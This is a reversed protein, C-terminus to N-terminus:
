IITFKQAIIKKFANGREQYNKFLDYSSGSPSFLIPTTAHAFKCAATFADELTEHGSSRIGAQTCATALQEKEAGFCIVHVVNQPLQAILLAARNVGKSLGGLILVVPQNGFSHVAALTAEPVTSKSDNYFTIGEATNIRELRHHLIESDYNVTRDFDFPQNLIHLASAVILWNEPYSRQPFLDLSTIVKQVGNKQTMIQNNEVWFLEYEFSVPPKQTTFFSFRDKQQEVLERVPLSTLLELPLLARQDKKQASLIHLKAALYNELTGHRDLHNPYLNTIIALQPQFQTCYELQFSSLELVTCDYEDQKKILELMGVGINGATVVRMTRSLLTSIFHTVSTKGVTGTIAIIPQHFNDSLLDLETIFKHQYHMQFPRPDIGPSMLILDNRDFFQDVSDQHIFTAGYLKILSDEETSLQRKEMITIPVKQDSLLAAAAKGVIGFGWIGVKKHTLDM